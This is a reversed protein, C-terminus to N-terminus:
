SPTTIHLEHNCKKQLQQWKIRKENIATSFLSFAKIDAHIENAFRV